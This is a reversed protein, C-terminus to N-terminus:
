KTELTINVLWQHADSTQGHDSTVGIAVATAPGAEFSAKGRTKAQVEWQQLAGTSRLVATGEAVAGTTRQTVTVRLYIREVVDTQIPGTLVIRRGNDSVTAVPDITNTMVRAYALPVVVVGLLTLIIATSVAAKLHKKLTSTFM